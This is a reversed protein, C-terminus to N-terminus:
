AAKRARPEPVTGGGGGLWRRHDQGLRNLNGGCEAVHRLSCDRTLLLLSVSRSVWRQSATLFFFCLRGRQAEAEEDACRLPASLGESREREAASSPVEQVESCYVCRSENSSAATNPSGVNWVRPNLPLGLEPRRPPSPQPRSLSPAGPHFCGQLITLAPGRAPTQAQPLRSPPRSVM